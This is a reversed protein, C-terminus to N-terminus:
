IEGNSLAQIVWRELRALSFSFFLFFFSLFAEQIVISRVCVCVCTWRNNAFVMGELRQVKM